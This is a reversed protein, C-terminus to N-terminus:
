EGFNVAKDLIKHAFRPIFVLVDVLVHLIQVYVFYVFYYLVGSNEVFFPFIGDYGFVGIFAQSIASVSASEIDMGFFDVMITNMSIFDSEPVSDTIVEEAVLPTRQLYVLNTFVVSLSEEPPVNPVQTWENISVSNDVWDVSDFLEASVTVNITQEGFPIASVVGTDIDYDRSNCLIVTDDILEHSNMIFSLQFPEDYIFYVPFLYMQFIDFTVDESVYLTFSDRDVTVSYTYDQYTYVPPVVPTDENENAQVPVFARGINLMLWFVLPLVLVFFWFVKDLKGQLRSHGSTSLNLM